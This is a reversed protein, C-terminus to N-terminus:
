RGGGVLREAWSLDAERHTEILRADAGSLTDDSEIWGPGIWEDVVDRAEPADAPRVVAGAVRAVNARVRAGKKAKAM